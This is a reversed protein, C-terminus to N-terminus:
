FSIKYTLITWSCLFNSFSSVIKHGPNRLSWDTCTLVSLTSPPLASQLLSVAEPVPGKKLQLCAPVKGALSSTAAQSAESWWLLHPLWRTDWTGQLGTQSPSCASQPTYTLLSCFSCLKQSLGQKLAEDEALLCTQVGSRQIGERCSSLKGASLVRVV